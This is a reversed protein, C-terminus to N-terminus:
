ILDSLDNKKIFDSLDKLVIFSKGYYKKSLFILPFHKMSEVGCVGRMKHSHLTLLTIFHRDIM